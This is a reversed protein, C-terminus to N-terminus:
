EGVSDLNPPDRHRRQVEAAIRSVLGVGFDDRRKELEAAVEVLFAGREHAKRM